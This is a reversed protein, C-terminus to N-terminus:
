LSFELSVKEELGIPSTKSSPDARPSSGSGDIHDSLSLMPRFFGSTTRLVISHLRYYTGESSRFVVDADSSGFLPHYNVQGPNSVMDFESFM